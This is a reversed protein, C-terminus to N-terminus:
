GENTKMANYAAGIAGAMSGLIAPVIRVRFGQPRWEMKDLYQALPEFLFNGAKAIGGGVIVVQPDVINILSAIACSLQYVSRLWIRRADENGDRFAAVLQETSTFLGESRRALTRNGIAEELTGPVGISDPIGDIDLCMHGFHGGRGLNGKLLKGNTLIAGGVGTGLTVLMVDRFGVATGKWVEGFLAAHADNLLVPCHPKLFNEWDFGQLQELHGSIAAMSRGDSAALGPSALGLWTARNNIRREVSEIQRLVNQACEAPEDGGTEVTTQFLLEGEKTVAVVKINTGGLDIGIAYKM